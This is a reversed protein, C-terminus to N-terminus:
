EERKQTGEKARVESPSVVIIPVNRAGYRGCQGVDNVAVGNPDNEGWPQVCANSGVNPDSADVGRFNPPGLALFLAGLPVQGNFM